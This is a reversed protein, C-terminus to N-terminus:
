PTPNPPMARRRCRPWDCATRPASAARRRDGAACARGPACRTCARCAARVARVEGVREFFQDLLRSASSSRRPSGRAPRRISPRARNRGLAVELADALDAVAVADQEDEVLHDGAEASEARREGGLLEAHHRVHHRDRLADRVGRNRHARHARALRDVVRDHVAGRAPM